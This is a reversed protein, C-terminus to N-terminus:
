PTRTAMRVAAKPQAPPAIPQSPANPANRPRATPASRPDVAVRRMSIGTRSYGYGIAQGIEALMLQSEPLDNWEKYSAMDDFDFRILIGNGATTGVDISAFHEDAAMRDLLPTPVADLWDAPARRTVLAASIELSVVLRSRSSAPQAQQNDQASLTRPWLGPAIALAFTPLLLIPRMIWFHLM